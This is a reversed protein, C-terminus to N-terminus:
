QLTIPLLEQVLAWAGAVALLLGLGVVLGTMMENVTDM